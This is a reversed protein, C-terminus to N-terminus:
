SQNLRNFFDNLYQGVYGRNESITFVTRSIHEYNIFAQINENPINNILLNLINLFIQFRQNLQQDNNIDEETYQYMRELCEYTFIFLVNETLTVNANILTNLVQEARGLRFQFDGLFADLASTNWSPPGPTPNIYNVNAGNDILLKIIPNNFHEVALILPTKGSSDPQNVVDPNNNILNQITYHDNNSIATFINNQQLDNNGGKLNNKLNL